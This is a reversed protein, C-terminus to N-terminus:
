WYCHKPKPTDGVMMKFDVGKIATAKYFACTEYAGNFMGRNKIGALGKRKNRNPHQNQLDLALHEKLNM